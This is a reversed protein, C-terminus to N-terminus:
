CGAKIRKRVNRKLARLGFSFSELVFALKLWGSAAQDPSLLKRAEPCSRLFRDIEQAKRLRPLWRLRKLRFDIFTVNGDVILFNALQADSRVYDLKHLEELATLIDPADDAVARRGEVFHYCVFSDIVVGGARLEGALVPEPAAFGMSRMFELHRVTRFADSERFRTLFREWKRSNRARPIKLLLSQGACKIQVSLTRSNDRFVAEIQLEDDIVADLIQRSQIVDKRTMM